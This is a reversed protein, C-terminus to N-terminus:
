SPNRDDVVHNILIGTLIATNQRTLEIRHTTEIGSIYIITTEGIHYIDLHGGTKEQPNQRLALTANVTKPGSM